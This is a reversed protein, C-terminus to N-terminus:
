SSSRWFISEHCQEVVIMTRLIQGGDRPEVWRPECPKQSLSEFSKSSWLAIMFFSPRSIPAM